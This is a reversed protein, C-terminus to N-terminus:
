PRPAAPPEPLQEAAEQWTDRSREHFAVEMGAFQNLMTSFDEAREKEWRQVEQLSSNRNHVAKLSKVAWTGWALM